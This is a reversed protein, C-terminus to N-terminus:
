KSKIKRYFGLSQHIVRGQLKWFNWTRRDFSKVHVSYFECWRLIDDISLDSLGTGSTRCPFRRMVKTAVKLLQWNLVYSTNKLLVHGSLGLRFHIPLLEYTNVIIKDLCPTIIPSSVVPRLKHHGAFTRQRTTIFSIMLFIKLRPSAWLQIPWHFTSKASVATETQM